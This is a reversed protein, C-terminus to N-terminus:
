FIFLLLFGYLIVVIGFICLYTSIFHSHKVAKEYLEFSAKSLTHNNKLAEKCSSMVQYRWAAMCASLIIPLYEGRYLCSVINLLDLSCTTGNYGMHYYIYYRVKKYAKEDEGTSSHMLDSGSFETESRPQHTEIEEGGENTSPESTPVKQPPQEPRDSFM